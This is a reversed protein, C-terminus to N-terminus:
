LVILTYKIVNELGSEGAEQSYLRQYSLKESPWIRLRHFSSDTKHPLLLIHDTTQALAQYM